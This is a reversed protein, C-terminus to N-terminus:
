VLLTRDEQALPLPERVPLDRLLESQSLAGDLREEETGPARQGALEVAGVAADAPEARDPAPALRQAASGRGLDGSRGEHDAAGEGRGRGDARVVRLPDCTGRRGSNVGDGPRG